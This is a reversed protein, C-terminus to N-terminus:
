SCIFIYYKVLGLGKYHINKDWSLLLNGGVFAGDVAFYGQQDKRLRYDQISPISSGAYMDLILDDWTKWNYSQYLSYDSLHTININLHNNYKQIDPQIKRCINTVVDVSRSCKTWNWYFPATATVLDREIIAMAETLLTKRIGVDKITSLALCLCAALTGSSTGSYYEPMEKEEILKKVFKFYYM